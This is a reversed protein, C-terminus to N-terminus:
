FLEINCDLLTKDSVRREGFRRSKQRAPVHQILKSNGIGKYGNIM